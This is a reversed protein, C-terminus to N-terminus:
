PKQPECTASRGHQLIQEWCVIDLCSDALSTPVIRTTFVNNPSGAISRSRHRRTTSVATVDCRTTSDVATMRRDRHTVIM